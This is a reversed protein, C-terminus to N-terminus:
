RTLPHPHPCPFPTPSPFPPHPIPFPTPSPPSGDFSSLSIYLVVPLCSPFIHCGLFPIMSLSTNKCTKIKFIHVTEKYMTQSIESGSYLNNRLINATDCFQVKQSIKKFIVGISISQIEAFSTISM